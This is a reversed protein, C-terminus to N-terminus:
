PKYKYLHVAQGPDYPREPVRRDSAKVGTTLKEFDNFKKQKSTSTCLLQHHTNPPPSRAQLPRLSHMSILFMKFLSPEALWCFDPDSEPFDLESGPDGFDVAEAGGRVAGSVDM